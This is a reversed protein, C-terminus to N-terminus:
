RWRRSEVVRTALFLFLVTVSVFYVTSSLDLVGRIFNDYYHGSIDLYRVVEAFIGTEGQPAFLGVLWLGLSIAFTAFFAAIQNAFLSSTFVGIAMLAAVLLLFGLYASGVVGWDLGPDTIANGIVFYIASIFLIVCMFAVAALWKGTVLEWEKIPATLLLELTGTRQEEALLRMTLGPTLFLMLTVFPGFVWQTVQPPGGFFGITSTAVNFNFIIGLVLFLTFAVAYAVPSVFYHNFERKAITWANRM